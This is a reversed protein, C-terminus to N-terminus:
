NCSCGCARDWFGGCSSCGNGQGPKCESGESCPLFNNGGDTGEVMWCWNYSPGKGGNAKGCSMFCSGDSCGYSDRGWCAQPALTNVDDTTKLHLGHPHNICLRIKAPDAGEPVPM